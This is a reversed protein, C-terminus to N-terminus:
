RTGAVLSFHIKVLPHVGSDYIPLILVIFILRSGLNM